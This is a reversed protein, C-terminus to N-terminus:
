TKQSCQDEKGQQKNRSRGACPLGSLHLKVAVIDEDDRLTAEAKELSNYALIAYKEMRLMLDSKRVLVFVNHTPWRCYEKTM